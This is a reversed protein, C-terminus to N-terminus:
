NFFFFVKISFKGRTRVVVGAQGNRERNPLLMVEAEKKM